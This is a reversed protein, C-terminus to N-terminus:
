SVAMHEGSLHYKFIFMLIINNKLIVRDKGDYEYQSLTKGQRLM